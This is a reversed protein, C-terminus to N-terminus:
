TGLIPFMCFWESVFDNLLRHKFLMYHAAEHTLTALRHQGAGVCLNAVVLAPILWAWHATGDWVLDVLYVMPALVLLLFAWERALYFWNTVNDTARLAHVRQHVRPDSLVTPTPLEATM